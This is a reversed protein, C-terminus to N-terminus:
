AGAKGDDAVELLFLGCDVGKQEWMDVVRYGCSEFLSKAEEADAVDYKHHPNHDTTPLIPMSAFLRGGPALIERFHNLAEQPKELHELTELSVITDYEGSVATVDGCEYTIRSHAYHENAYAIASESIDVGVVQVADGSQALISSGYGCGCACDLIRTGNLSQAASFYRLLHGPDIDTLKEGMQREGYCVMNKPWFLSQFDHNVLRHDKLIALFEAKSMAPNNWHWDSTFCTYDGDIRLKTFDMDVSLEGSAVGREWLRSGPLPQMIFTAWRHFTTDTSLIELRRVDDLLEERTQGPFGPVLNGGIQLGIKTAWRVTNEIQEYTVIKKLSKLVRPNLAECGMGLNVAGIDQLMKCTHEEVLNANISVLKITFKHLLNKGAMMRHLEELRGPAVLFSDDQFFVVPNGTKELRQELLYLLRDASLYRAGCNNPNEVCHDCRFPCGRVTAIDFQQNPFRLVDVPLDDLKPQVAPETLVIQGRHRYAIGPIQSLDPHRWKAYADALDAMQKEGAGLVAVDALPPLCEPLATIHPGGVIIPGTFGRRRLRTVCRKLDPWVETVCSLGMIDPKCGLIDRELRVEVSGYDNNHEGLYQGLASFGLYHMKLPDNLFKPRRLPKYFVINM